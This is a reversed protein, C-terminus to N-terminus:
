PKLRQLGVSRIEEPGVLLPAVVDALVRRDAMAFGATGARPYHNGRDDVIDGGTHRAFFNKAAIRLESCRIDGGHGLGCLERAFTGNLESFWRKFNLISSVRGDAHAAAVKM